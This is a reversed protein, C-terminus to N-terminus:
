KDDDGNCNSDVKDDATEAAGPHIAANKDNCDVSVGYGDQDFDIEPVATPQEQQQSAETKTPIPTPPAQIIALLNLDGSPTGAVNSIFCQDNDVKSYWWMGDTSKGVVEVQEGALASNVVDYMVGPGKRCNAPVQVILIFSAPVVPTDTYIPIIGSQTAEPTITEPTAIVIPESATMVDCALAAVMDIPPPVSLSTDCRTGPVLGVSSAQAGLVLRGMEPPLNETCRGPVLTWAIPGSGFTLTLQVIEGSTNCVRVLRVGESRFEPISLDAPQWVAASGSCDGAFDLPVITEREPLIVNVDHTVPSRPDRGGTASFTFTTSGTIPGVVTGGRVRLGTLPSGLVEMPDSSISVFVETCGGGLCGHEDGGDWSLAVSDGPCVFEPDVDTIWVIPNRNLNCAALSIIACLSLFSAKRRFLSKALNM